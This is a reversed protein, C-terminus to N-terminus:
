RTDVPRVITHRVSPDQFPIFTQSHFLFPLIRKQLGAREAVLKKQEELESLKATAKKVENCCSSVKSHARWSKDACEAKFVFMACISYGTGDWECFLDCFHEHCKDEVSFCVAVSKAEGRRRAGAM